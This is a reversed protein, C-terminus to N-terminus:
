ELYCDVADTISCLKSEDRPAEFRGRLAEGVYLCFRNFSITDMRTKAWNLRNVLTRIEEKTLKSTGSSEVESTLKGIDVVRWHWHEEPFSPGCSDFLDRAEIAFQRAEKIYQVYVDSVPQGSTLDSMDGRYVKAVTSSDIFYLWQCGFANNAISVGVRDFLVM